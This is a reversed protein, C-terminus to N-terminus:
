FDKSNQDDKEMKELIYKMTKLFNKFLKRTLDGIEMQLLYHKEGTNPNTIPFYLSKVYRGGKVNAM